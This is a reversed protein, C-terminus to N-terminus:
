LNLPVDREREKINKRKLGKKKKVRKSVWVEIKKEEEKERKKGRMRFGVVCDCSRKRRKNKKRKKFRNWERERRMKFGVVWDCLEETEEEEEKKRLGTGSKERM